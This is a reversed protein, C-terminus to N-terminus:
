AKTTAIIKRSIVYGIAGVVVMSVNGIIGWEGIIGIAYAYCPILASCLTVGFSFFREFGDTAMFAKRNKLGVQTSMYTGITYLALVFGGMALIQWGISPQIIYYHLNEEKGYITGYVRTLPELFPYISDGIPELIYTSVNDLFTTGVFYHDVYQAIGLISYPVAALAAVGIALAPLTPYIVYQVFVGFLYFSLLVLTSYLLLLAVGSFKDAEIFIHSYLSELQEEPLWRCTRVYLITVSIGLFIMNGVIVGSGVLTKAQYYQKQTYPLAAMFDGTGSTKDEHFQFYIMGIIVLGILLSYGSWVCALIDLFQKEQGYGRLYSKFIDQERMCMQFVIGGVALLMVLAVGWLRKLEHKILVKM